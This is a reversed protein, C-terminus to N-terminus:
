SYGLEFLNFSVEIPPKYIEVPTTTYYGLSWSEGRDGDAKLNEYSAIEPWAQKPPFPSLRRLVPSSEPCPIREPQHVFCFFIVMVRIFIADFDPHM